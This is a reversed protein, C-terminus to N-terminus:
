KVLLTLVKDTCPVQTFVVSDRTSVNTSISTALLAGFCLDTRGDRFYTIHATNFDSSGLPKTNECGCLALALVGIIIANRM